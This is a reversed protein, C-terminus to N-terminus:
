QQGLKKLNEQKNWMMKQREFSSLDHIKFNFLLSISLPTYNM